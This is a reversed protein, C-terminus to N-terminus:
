LLQTRRGLGVADWAGAGWVAEGVKDQGTEPAPGSRPEVSEREAGSLLLGRGWWTNGPMLGRGQAQGVPRGATPEGRRGEREWERERRRLRERQREQQWEIGENTRSAARVAAGAQAVPGERPM